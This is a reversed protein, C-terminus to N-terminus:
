SVDAPPPSLIVDLLHQADTDLGVVGKMSRKMLMVTILLRNIENTGEFIRNVRQDRFAREVPYDSSFGYGGYIQVTEDTVFHLTETGALKLISCEVAYQQLAELIQRAATPARQDIGELLKEIMGKM